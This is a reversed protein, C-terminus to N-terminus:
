IPKESYLGAYVSLVIGDLENTIVLDVKPVLPPRACRVWGAWLTLDQPEEHVAVTKAAEGTANPHYKPGKTAM